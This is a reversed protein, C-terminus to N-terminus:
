FYAINLFSLLSTDKFHLSRARIKMKSRSEKEGKMCELQVAQMKEFSQTKCAKM